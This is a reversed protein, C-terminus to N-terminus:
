RRRWWVIIGLILMITPPVLWSSWKIFDRERTNVILERFPVLKPGVSILNFDEALWNVSNLLLDANESRFYSGNRAFDSDGFIVLKSPREPESVLRGDLTGGAQVVAVLDLPGVPDKAPDFSVDNPDTELWSAPTSRVLPTYALFPPLDEPPLALRLATAGPFFVVSLPDAIPIGSAGSTIFQGNAKQAMPTLAEGAVNSVLDAVNDTALLVGWVSLLRRFSDPTDPDMLAVLTGGDLLYDIIAGGEDDTLDKKPGAIVLVAADSPVVAEQQLNLPRVDYNDRQMGEIAFDFGDPHTDGTAPDRTRAAEGHGTLYFVIKRKEHTAALFGTLFDQESFNAVKQMSGTDIDEFVVTPIDTVSYKLAQSRELQPDLFRYTFNSSQRSFENLLDEAQRRAFATRADGPVFFANARVLSTSLSLVQLTEPSLTFVRTATTDFRTSTRFLLFNVLIVIAFFAVTMVALNAGYRGRRGAMFMAVARPSLVLAVFLLVLGIILVVISFNRIEEISLALVSGAVTAFIGVIAAIGSWFGTSRLSALLTDWVSEVNSSQNGM